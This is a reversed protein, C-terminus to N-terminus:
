QLLRQPAVLTEQIALLVPMVRMAEVVGAVVV